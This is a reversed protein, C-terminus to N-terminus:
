NPQPFTLVALNRSIQLKISPCLTNPLESISRFCSSGLRTLICSTQFLPFDLTLPPLLSCARLIVSTSDLVCEISAVNNFLRLDGLTSLKPWSFAVEEIYPLSSLRLVADVHRIRIEDRVRFHHRMAQCATIKTSFSEDFIALIAHSSRRISSLFHVSLDESQAGAWMYVNCNATINRRVKSKGVCGKSTEM